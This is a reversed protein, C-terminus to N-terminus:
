AAIELPNPGYENSGPESNAFTWAIMIVFSVYSLILAPFALLLMATGILVSLNLTLAAILGIFSPLFFALGLAAVAYSAPYGIDHLRRVSVAFFPIILLGAPIFTRWTPSVSFLLVQTKWGESVEVSKEGTILSTTVTETRVFETSTPFFEFENM